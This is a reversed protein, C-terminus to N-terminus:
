PEIKIVRYRVHFLLIAKRPYDWIVEKVKYEYDIVEYGKDKIPEEGQTRIRVLDRKRPVSNVDNFERYRINSLCDIRKGKYVLYIKM